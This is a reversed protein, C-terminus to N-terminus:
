ISEILLSHLQCAAALQYHRVGHKTVTNNSASTYSVKDAGSRVHLKNGKAWYELRETSSVEDTLTSTARLTWSGGAREYIDLSDGTVYHLFAWCADASSARLIGTFSTNGTYSFTAVCRVDSIGVDVTAMGGLAGPDPSGKSDLVLNNSATEWDGFVESWAVAALREGHPGTTETNGLTSSDGRSFSDYAVAQSGGREIRSRTAPYEPPGDPTHATTRTASM